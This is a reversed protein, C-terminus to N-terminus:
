RSLQDLKKQMDAMQKRLSDGSLRFSHLCLLRLKM